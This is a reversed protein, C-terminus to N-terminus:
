SRPSLFSIVDDGGGADLYVTANSEDLLGSCALMHGIRAHGGDVLTRCADLGVVQDPSLYRAVLGGCDLKKECLHVGGQSCQFRRSVLIEFYNAPDNTPPV